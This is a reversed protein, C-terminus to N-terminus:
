FGDEDSGKGKKNKKPEVFDKTEIFKWRSRDDKANANFGEVVRKAYTDRDEGSKLEPLYSSNTDYTEEHSKGGLLPELVVIFKM